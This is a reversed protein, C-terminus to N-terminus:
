TRLYSLARPARSGAHRKACTQRASGAVPLIFGHPAEVVDVERELERALLLVPQQREVAPAQRLQAQREGAQYSATLEPRRQADQELAPVRAALAAGDLTEDGREVGAVDADLREGCRRGVLLAVVVQVAKDGRQGAPAPHGHEIAGPVPAHEDLADLAEGGLLLPPPGVALDVVELAHQGVVAQDEGLEEQVDGLGLLQLAELPAALIGQLAPLEGVLVPAVALLAGGVLGRQLLHEPAGWRPSGGRRRPRAPPSTRACRCRARAM